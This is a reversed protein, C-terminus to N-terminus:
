ISICTSVIIPDCDRMPGARTGSLIHTGGVWLDVKRWLMYGHRAVSAVDCFKKFELYIVHRLYM